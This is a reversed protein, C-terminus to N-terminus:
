YAMLPVNKPDMGNDRLVKIDRIEGRYVV